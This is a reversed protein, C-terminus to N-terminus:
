AKTLVNRYVELTKETIMDFTAPAAITNKLAKLEAPNEIVYELLAALNGADNRKFLFGNLEPIVHEANGAFDSAIVPIKAAFAEQIVLASMESSVSPLILADYRCLVNVAEENKFVGKLVIDHASKSIMDSCEAYYSDETPQGYVHLIIKKGKIKLLAELLLKLGKIYTIRGVYIFKLTSSDNNNSKGTEVAQCSVGQAIYALKSQPFHNLLLVEEFWKSIVIICDSYNIVKELDSQKKRILAPIGLFRCMFGKRNFGIKNIYFQRNLFSMFKALLSIQVKSHIVCAACKVPIILGNCPEANKYMLNGTQCITTAIHFTLVVKIHLSKAAELHFVSIGNSKNLEHFHVIDPNISKLTEKFNAVGSSPEFGQILARNTTKSETYYIVPIDEIQYSARDWYDPRVVYIEEGANKLKKALQFVYNEIGALTDPLFFNVVHVIRL